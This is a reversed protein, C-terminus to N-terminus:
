CQGVEREWSKKETRVTKARLGREQWQFVVTMESLSGLLCHSSSGLGVEIRFSSSGLLM